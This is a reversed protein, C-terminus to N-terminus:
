DDDDNPLDEFCVQLEVYESVMNHFEIYDNKVTGKRRKISVFEADFETQLETDNVSEILKSIEVLIKGVPKNSIHEYAAREAPTVFIPPEDFPITQKRTLNDRMELFTHIFKHHKKTAEACFNVLGADLEKGSLSTHPVETGPSTLYDRERLVARFAMVQKSIDSPIQVRKSKPDQVGMQAFAKEWLKTLHSYNSCAM